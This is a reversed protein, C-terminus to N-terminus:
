SSEEAMTQPVINCLYSAVLQTPHHHKCAWSCITTLSPRVAMGAIGHFDVPMTQDDGESGDGDEEVNETSRSRKRGMSRGPMLQETKRTGGAM